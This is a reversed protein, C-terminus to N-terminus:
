AADTSLLQRSERLWMRVRAMLPLRYPSGILAADADGAMRSRARGIASRAALVVAAEVGLLTLAAAPGSAWPVVAVPLGSCWWATREMVATGCGALWACAYGAQPWLWSVALSALGALTAAAVLPAVILNALPALMPLQPEMLTQLPLTLAQAALTVALAQAVPAPTRQALWDELPRAWWIIGLVAACSLAFGMSAALDPQALLAAIVTVCLMSMGQSRRGHLFAVIGVAGMATARLVSDSPMMAAGLLAYGAALCAAVPARPMRIAACLRRLLAAVVAFHGGSVAMLHMIGSRRFQEEVHAAYAPEVPAVSPDRMSPDAVASGLVGLTLGPVLVQGQDDLRQTVRVFAAQMAHVARGAAGPQAVMAAPEDGITLWARASGFSPPELMGRVAYAAGQHLACADGSAYLRAPASSPAIVGRSRLMLVDADARCDAARRDSATAPQRIRVVAQVSASGSALARAVVDGSRVAAHMQCCAATALMATLVVIGHRRLQTCTPPRRRLLAAVLAAIAIAAIALAAAGLVLAFPLPLGDAAASAQQWALSTTWTAAAAPLLRWDRSGQECQESWGLRRGPQRLRRAHRPKAHWRRQSHQSNM